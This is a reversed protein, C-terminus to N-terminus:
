ERKNESDPPRARCSPSKPRKALRERHLAPRRCQMPKARPALAIMTPAPSTSTPITQGHWAPARPQVFIRRPVESDPSRDTSRSTRDPSWALVTVGLLVVLSGSALMVWNSPEPVAVHIIADAFAIDPTVLDGSGAVNGDYPPSVVNGGYQLPAPTANGDALFTGSEGTRFYLGSTGPADARFTLTGFYFSGSDSDFGADAGAIWPDNTVGDGVIRLAFANTVWDTDGASGLSRLETFQWRYDNTIQNVFNPVDFGLAHAVVPNSSEVDIALTAYSQVPPYDDPRLWVHLVRTEGVLMNITPVDAITLPAPAVYRPLTNGPSKLIPMGVESFFVTAAFSAPACLVSSAIVFMGAAFSRAARRLNM